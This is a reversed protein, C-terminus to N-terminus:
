RREPFLGTSGSVPDYAGRGYGMMIDVSQQPSTSFGARGGHERVWLIAAYQARERATARWTWDPRKCEVMIFISRFIGVLDGTKFVENIRESTNGLGYRVPRMQGTKEDVERAVGSNNRLLAGGEREAALISLNMVDTETKM